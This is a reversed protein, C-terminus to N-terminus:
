HWAKSRLRALPQYFARPEAQSVTCTLQPYPLSPLQEQITAAPKHALLCVTCCVTSVRVEYAPKCTLGWAQLNKIRRM